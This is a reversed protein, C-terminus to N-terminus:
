STTVIHEGVTIIHIGQAKALQTVRFTDAPRNSNGDTLLLIVNQVGERDGRGSTFGSTRM